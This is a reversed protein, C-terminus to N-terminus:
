PTSGARRLVVPGVLAGFALQGAALTLVGGIAGLSRSLLAVPVMVALAVLCGLRARGLDLGIALPLWATATYAVPAALSTAVLVPRLAGPELSMSSAVLPATAWALGVAIAALAPGVVVALRRAGAEGSKLRHVLLAGFLTAGFLGGHTIIVGARLRGLEAVPSSWKTAWVDGTWVLMSLVTLVVYPLSQRVYTPWSRLASFHPALGERRLSLALPLLMGAGAVALGLGLMLPSIAGLAEVGVLPALVVGVVAFLTVGSLLLGLAEARPEGLGRWTALAFASLHPFFLSLVVLWGFGRLAPSEVLWPVALAVLGYALAASALFCAHAGAHTATLPRGSARADAANYQAWDPLGLHLAAGLLGCATAVVTHAGLAEPGGVRGVAISAGLTVAKQLGLAGWAVLPWVPRPASM